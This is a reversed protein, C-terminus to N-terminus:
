GVGELELEILRNLEVAYELPLERTVPEIFGNVIMKVAEEENMGRSMLYFLDDERIRGVTAEHSTEVHSNKIEMHPWTNSKSSGDMILADCAVFVKSNEAKKDVRVLGRYSTIGGDKSISKSRVVSSTNPALHYVKSGTDQNQGSGAYAIGINDTHAGEGILISCPYLMTVRSGMNGNVWEMTANERVLARKTNLNYTNKSWNEVSSYRVRSGEMAFIEVGGAHLSSKDYRPASCGEIYHVEANREVIILTHEFQGMGPANMRFYAQLPVDVKVGEPVYLFTGGSWVAGHLAAFKHLSPPIAQTMFYEKVLDPHEEVATDMNDFLVGREQWYEKLRHYIIMSEYQAGAGALYRQEAEPIGLKEFTNKIDEPVDEWDTAEQADPVAYYTIERLDLEELGPGWQPMELKEFVQLSRLRRRLMWDPEEKMESITRVLEETIGPDSQYSFRPVNRHDLNERDITYEM